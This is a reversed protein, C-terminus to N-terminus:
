KGKMKLFEQYNLINNQSQVGLAKIDKGSQHIELYAEDLEKSLDINMVESIESDKIVGKKKTGSLSLDDKYIVKMESQVLGETAEIIEAVGDKSTPSPFIMRGKTSGIEKRIKKDIEGFVSDYDWEANLPYFKFVLQSIKDVDRLAEKVSQVTKIGAIHTKPMPLIDNAGSKRSQNQKVVYQKICERFAAGFGRLDPSGTQNKVLMMRHNKLYIIFVSYPSSKFHKNTKELGKERSYESMIDLITDKILIGQIVYENEEIENIRVSEFIYRTRESSEIYTGSQLAPLVIDELYNILPEEERGFVVNLDAIYMQKTQM